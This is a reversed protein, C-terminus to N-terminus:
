IGCWNTHGKEADQKVGDVLDLLEDVNIGNVVKAEIKEAQVVM